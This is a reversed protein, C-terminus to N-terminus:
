ASSARSRSRQLHHQVHGIGHDRIQVQALQEPCDRFQQAAQDPVLVGAQHQDIGGLPLKTQFREIKRAAIALDVFHLRAEGSSEGATVAM